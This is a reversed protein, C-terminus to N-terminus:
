RAGRWIVVGTVTQIAAEAARVAVKKSMSNPVFLMDDPQLSVDKKRGDLVAELNVPIYERATDPGTIRLISANKPAATPSLGGALALAQIVTISSRENLPFGGARVVNGVVYILESRPVTITDLPCITLNRAPAEASLIDKVRIEAVQFKGSEDVHTAGEPFESCRNERAIKISRGADDTLGGAMALLDAVTKRGQLQHVGPTRVAGLVSVPQSRYEKVAVIVEAHKVYRSLRQVILERLGDVTLGEANLTGALPISIQGTKSLRFTRDKLDEMDGVFITVEDDPGLKYDSQAQQARAATDGSLCTVSWITCFSFLLTRAIRM